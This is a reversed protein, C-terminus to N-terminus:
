RGLGVACIAAAGVFDPKSSSMSNMCRLILMETTGQSDKRMRVLVNGTASAIVMEGGVGGAPKRMM